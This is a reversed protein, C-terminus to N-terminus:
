SQHLCWSAPQVFRTRHTWLGTGECFKVQSNSAIIQHWKWCNRYIGRRDLNHSCFILTCIKSVNRDCFYHEALWSILYNVLTKRSTSWIPRDAFHCLTTNMPFSLRWVPWKWPRSSGRFLTLYLLLCRRSECYDVKVDLRDGKGYSIPAIGPLYFGATNRCSLCLLLM